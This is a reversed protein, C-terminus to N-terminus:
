RKIQLLKKKKKLKEAVKIEEWMKVIDKINKVKYNGFIHPHRRVLKENLNKIIGTINFHGKEKAIQAYFVIHLLIDGIEEKLNEMDKKRIAAKLENAESFFSKLLSQYTQKKDWDCGTKSRLKSM